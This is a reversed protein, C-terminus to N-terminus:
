RSRARASPAPTSESPEESSEGGSAGPEAAPAASSRNTFLRGIRLVSMIDPGTLRELDSVDIAQDAAVIGMFGLYLTFSYDFELVKVVRQPSKSAALAEAEIFQEVTLRDMDCALERREEGNVTLPHNLAITVM